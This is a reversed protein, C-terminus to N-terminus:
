GSQDMMDYYIHYSMICNSDVSMVSGDHWLQYSKVHYFKVQIVQSICLLMILIIQCLGIKGAQDSLGMINYDIHNLM